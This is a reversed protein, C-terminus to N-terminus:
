PRPGNGNGNGPAPGGGQGGPGGGQGAGERQGNSVILTVTSGSPAQGSPSQEAVRGAGQFSPVQNPDVNVAFGASELQRTAEGVDWGIVSPVGVEKGNLDTPSVEGFGPVEQGALAQEMFRKWTPAAITSGYMNRVVRGNVPVRQMPTFSDPYGVWVSAAMVPTYGVFWTHENESTTGTKGASPFAPAGVDKATGQWVHSLTFNMANAIRPEIAQACNAPPVPLEAGNADVIKTIAIPTCHIGGSAFTAFAEAMSLPAVSNTGLVTSPYPDFAGEGANGGAKHIGIQEAGAMIDCLDLQMAMTLYALNVSNKTADLVSMMSGDGEANGPTYPSNKGKKGCARFMNENLARKQGNVQERLSHGQKLWELLTFPKFTSGPPFGSAAGYLNDANWNVSTDTASATNNYNRNQAMALIEGTGPKVVSIASGIGSPDDVPIGNKVEADALGQLRPDITTTITLGGRYLLDTREQKTAGFVPDNAIVKTVYDCFYGSGPVVEGATSCGLKTNQVHLTSEIPTAIGADHEEPTIIGQDRMLGLVTARRDTALAPNKVPDWKTPAQTIGAITAAELYTLEAAPKSFYYQAAAEVGYIAIGFQAINLYNELIKDKPMSKELAIALKAERLKRSIGEAGEATRAAELAQRDDERKAKEILVNKVYQQTLTSAGEKQDSLLTKVTARAMGQPDIGGHDYFRKDEVALVAAQMVPAMQDLGVVIRNDHYFTALVSGDAALMTSKESLPRQEGLESPLDDFATVTLDTAGNTVAVAPLILGAALLGGVGAMLVFALLLALAQFANVKRGRVSTAM